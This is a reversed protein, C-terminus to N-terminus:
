PTDDKKETEWNKLHSETVNIETKILVPSPKIRAAVTTVPDYELEIKVAEPLRNEYDRKETDWLDSWTETKPDYFSVKFNKINELLIETEFKDANERDKPSVARLSNGRILQGSNLQYTVFHSENEPSDVGRRRHTRSTFFMDSGSGKFVTVPLPKVPAPLPNSLPKLPDEKVPAWVFDEAVNYYAGSIDRELIALVARGEQLIETRRDISEKNQITARVASFTSLGLFGLLVLVILIEILSFGTIQPASKV